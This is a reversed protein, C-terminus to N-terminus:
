QALSTQEAELAAVARAAAVLPTYVATEVEAAV